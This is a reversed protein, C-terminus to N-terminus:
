AVECQELMSYKTPTKTVLEPFEPIPNNLSLQSAAKFIVRTDRADWPSVVVWIQIYVKWHSRPQDVIIGALEEVCYLGCSESVVISNVVSNSARSGRSSDFTSPACCLGDVRAGSSGSLQEKKKAEFDELTPNKSGLFQLVPRLTTLKNKV